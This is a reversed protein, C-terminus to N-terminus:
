EKKGCIKALRTRIKEAQAIIAAQEKDTLGEEVVSANTIATLLKEQVFVKASVKDGVSNKIM